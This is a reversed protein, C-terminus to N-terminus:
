VHLDRLLVLSAAVPELWLSQQGQVDLAAVQTQAQFREQLVDLLLEMMALMVQQVLPLAVPPEMQPICDKPVLHVLVLALLLIRGQPVLAVLVLVLLPTPGM